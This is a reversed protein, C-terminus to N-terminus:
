GRRRAADEIELDVLSPRALARRLASLRGPQLRDDVVDNQGVPAEELPDDDQYLDTKAPQQQKPQGAAAGRQDTQALLQEQRKDVEGAVAPQELLRVFVDGEDNQCDDGRSAHPSEICELEPAGGCQPTPRESLSAAAQRLM